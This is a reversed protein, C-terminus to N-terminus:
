RRRTFLKVVDSRFNKNMISYIIVNVAHNPFTMILINIAKIKLVYIPLYSLAFLVTVMALMRASKGSASGTGKPGPPPATSSSGKNSAAPSVHSVGRSSDSSAATTIASAGQVPARSSSPAVTIRKRKRLFIVIHSYLVAMLTLSTIVYWMTIQTTSVKLWALIGLVFSWAVGTIVIATVKNDSWKISLPRCIARHYEFAICILMWISLTILCLSLGWWFVAYIPHAVGLRVFPFSPVMIGSAILDVIALILIFARNLRRKRSYIIVITVNGPVGILTVIAAVTYAVPEFWSSISDADIPALPATAETTLSASTEM